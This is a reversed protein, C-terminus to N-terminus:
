YYSMKSPPPKPPSLLSSLIRLRSPNRSRFLYDACIASMYSALVRVLRKTDEILSSPTATFKPPAQPPNRYRDPAM